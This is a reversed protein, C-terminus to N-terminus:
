AVVIVAFIALFVVAVLIAEAQLLRHRGRVQPRQAVVRGIV